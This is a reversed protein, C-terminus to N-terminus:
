PKGGSSEVNDADGSGAPRSAANGGAPALEASAPVTAPLTRLDAIASNVARRMPWFLRARYRGSSIMRESNPWKAGTVVYGDWGDFNWRVFGLLKGDVSFARWCKGAKIKKWFIAFETM